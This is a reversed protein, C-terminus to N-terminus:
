KTKRSGIQEDWRRFAYVMVDADLPIEKPASEILQDYEPRGYEKISAQSAAPAMSLPVDRRRRALISIAMTM